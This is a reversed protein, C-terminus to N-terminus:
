RFYRIAHAELGQVGARTIVVHSAGGFRGIGAIGLRGERVMAVISEANGEIDDTVGYMITQAITSTSM